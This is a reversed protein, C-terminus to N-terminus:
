MALPAALGAASLAVATVGAAAVGGVVAGVASKYKASKKKHAKARLLEDTGRRIFDATSGVQEAINDIMKGQEFVLVSFDLMMQQLELLDKYLKQMGEHREQVTRNLELIAQGRNQLLAEKFVDEARGSEIMADVQEDNVAENTVIQLRRKVDDHYEEAVRREFDKFADCMKNFKAVLGITIQARMQFVSTIRDRCEEIEHDPVDLDVSDVAATYDVENRKQVRKIADNTGKLGLRIGNVLKAMDAQAAQLEATKTLKKSIDHLHVMERKEEEIKSLDTKIKSVEEYFAPLSAQPDFVAPPPQQQQQQPPMARSAPVPAPAPQRFGAQPQPTSPVPKHPLSQPQNLDPMNEGNSDIRGRLGSDSSTKKSGTKFWTRLKDRKSAKVGSAGGSDAVIGEYSGFGTSSAPGGGRAATPPTLFPNSASPPPAGNGEYFPNTGDDGLGDRLDGMRDM